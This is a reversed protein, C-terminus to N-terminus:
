GSRDGQPRERREAALLAAAGIGLGGCAESASVPERLVLWAWVASLVPSAAYIPQAEAASVSRQGEYQLLLGLVAASASVCLLAAQPPLSRAASRAM